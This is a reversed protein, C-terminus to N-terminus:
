FREGLLRYCWFAEDTAIRENLIAPSFGTARKLSRGMHSQDAFDADLATQTLEAYQAGQRVQHLDELKAYFELSRRSRGTWRHLARQVSRASHDRQASLSSSIMHRAWDAIEDSGVWNSRSGNDRSQDWFPAIEACFLKFATEPDTALTIMRLADRLSPPVNTADPKGVMRAWADPYIALTVAVLAHPSWSVTPEDSSVAVSIRPIPSLAKLDALGCKGRGVYLQGQLVLTATMLPTAPFYNMRELDSLDAARTDRYIAGAIFSALEKPPLLFRAIGLM